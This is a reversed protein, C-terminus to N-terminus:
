VIRRLAAIRLSKRDSCARMLANVCPCRYVRSSYRVFALTVDSRTRTFRPALLPGAFQDSAFAKAEGRLIPELVRTRVYPSGSATLIEYRFGDHPDLTTVAELQGEKQFRQNRGTLRRM